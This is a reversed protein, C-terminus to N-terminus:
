EDFHRKNLTANVQFTENLLDCKRQAGSLVWQIQHKLTM